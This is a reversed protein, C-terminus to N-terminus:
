ELTQEVGVATRDRLAPPRASDVVHRGRFAEAVADHEEDPGQATDGVPVSSRRGTSRRSPRAPARNVVTGVRENEVDPKGGSDLREAKCPLAVPIPL